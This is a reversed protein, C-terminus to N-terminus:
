RDAFQANICFSILGPLLYASAVQVLAGRGLACVGCQVEGTLFSQIM